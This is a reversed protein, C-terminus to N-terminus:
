LESILDIIDFLSDAQATLLKRTDEGPQDQDPIMVPICGARFGSLIGAPSDELVLCDRPSCHLKGAAYLFIDPEPKGHSVERCSCVADFKNLLDLPALYSQIRDMPSSTALAAGIGREKLFALLERIGPKPAIGHEEVFADMLRIRAGHVSAYDIDPGFFKKLNAEGAEANLARMTLAQDHTMPYGLSICAEQWFRSYLKESDLVLGDMDFLVGTPIHLNQSNFVTYAM